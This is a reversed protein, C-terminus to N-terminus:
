HQAANKRLRSLGLFGLLGMLMMLAWESLTPISAAVGPLAPSATAGFEFAGIDNRLGAPRAFGRQDTAPAGNPANFIVGDIAPSGALLAFTETAGGNNALPALTPNTNSMSGNVVAWGCTAGDDINNGGNTFTGLGTQCNGGPVNATFISNRVTNTTGANAGIGGGGTASTTSNGSFTSNIVSVTGVSNYIAGGGGGTVGTSSNGSFTSNTITVTTAAANNYIAGGVGGGTSNNGIFTSNSVTLTGNNFVASGNGSSGNAITLNNLALSGDSVQFVGVANNGSITVAQGAGDIVLAGGAAAITPLLSLLTVTGSVGFSINDTAPTAMADLIAQRLSGTGSDNLNSVIFPAANANSAFAVLVTLALMISSGSFGFAFNARKSKM